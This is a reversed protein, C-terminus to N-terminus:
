VSKCMDQPCFHPCNWNCWMTLAEKSPDSGIYVYKPGSSGSASPATTSQTPPQTAPVPRPPPTPTMAPKSPQQTKTPTPTAETPSSPAPSIPDDSTPSGSGVKVDACNNYHEFPPTHRAEWEFLLVCHGNQCPLKTESPINISMEAPTPEGGKIGPGPVLSRMCDNMQGVETRDNPDKPNVLYVSCPGIHNAGNNARMKIKSEGLPLVQLNTDATFGLCDGGKGNTYAARDPIPFGFTNGINLGM